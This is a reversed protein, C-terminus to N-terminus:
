ENRLTEKLKTLAIKTEATTEGLLSAILQVTTMQKEIVKDTIEITRRDQADKIERATENETIDRMIAIVVRFSVDYIVTLTVHRAYEALFLKREKITQRSELVEVFPAPDLVCSVNMGLVDRQNKINLIRGAAANIQQIELSEKMVMVGNLTHDIIIDSFSQAREMLYPMCMTEDSKGSITTAVKERCTDYGCSGCNLEDSPKSKGIRLLAEELTKADLKPIRVTQQPMAKYLLEEDPPEIPFDESGALKEVAVYSKIPMNREPGMAPGGICSGKCASMEIFCRDTNGESIDKLATMCQEMGDIALYRYDKSDARMSRIIGGAIPFLRARGGLETSSDKHLELGEDSLWKSLGEFTIVCDVIGPYQDGENKKSICPGIFVVKADPRLRKIAAGHALMPSQVKALYPLAGPYYRQILMNVTHCCSSIVVRQKGADIMDDYHTKVITAGIATEEVGEFGMELLTKKMSDISVGPYNAAFSPAVSAYVPSEGELLKKAIPVDDRMIKAHQPCCVLCRGCLICEEQVISAQNSGFSIAKVPCNRICKYCNKCNNKKVKLCENM